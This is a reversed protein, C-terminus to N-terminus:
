AHLQDLLSRSRVQKARPGFPEYFFLSSQVIITIFAGEPAGNLGRFCIDLTRSRSTYYELNNKQDLEMTCGQNGYIFQLAHEKLPLDTDVAWANVQAPVDRDVDWATLAAVLSYDRLQSYNVNTLAAPDVRDICTVNGTRDKKPRWYQLVGISKGEDEDEDDTEELTAQLDPLFSGLKLSPKRITAM